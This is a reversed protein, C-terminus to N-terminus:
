VSIPDLSGTSPDIDAWVVKAGLYAIPQTTMLCSMPSVIIEDGRSVDLLKLSFLVSNGSITLVNPNKIYRQLELEFRRTNQGYGLQGSELVKGIGLMAEKPMFVEHLPEM